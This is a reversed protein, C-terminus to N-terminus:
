SPADPQESIPSPHPTAISHVTEALCSVPTRHVAALPSVFAHSTRAIVAPGTNHSSRISPQIIDLDHVPCQQRAPEECSCEATTSVPFRAAPSSLVLVLAVIMAFTAATRRVIGKVADRLRVSENGGM